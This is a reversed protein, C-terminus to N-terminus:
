DKVGNRANGLIMSMTYKQSLLKVVHDIHETCLSTGEIFGTAIEYRKHVPKVGSLIHLVCYTPEEM